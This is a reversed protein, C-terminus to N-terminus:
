RACRICLRNEPMLMLRGEQIQGGCRTCKGFGPDNIKDLAMKLKNLKFEAQRLALDNVAKNNIADMRSVRGIADDPSIPNTLDKLEEVKQQTISIESEIKEKLAKLNM